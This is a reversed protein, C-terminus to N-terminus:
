KKLGLINKYKLFFLIVGGCSFMLYLFGLTFIGEGANDVNILASFFVYTLGIYGYVVSLLLFLFSQQKIAYRIFYVCLAALLLFSIFKLNQTFLASLTAIFLINAGFNHFTFSFHTKINKFHAVQAWTILCTGLVLATIIINLSSFDNNNFLQLPTVSLGFTAALGSIGLSLVGKHDFRYAIYFFVLTPIFTAFGYHNWFLNYQYQFYGIFTAFLLCALLVVYDFFPSEYIVRENSYKKKHKHIYYFCATTAAAILALIAQHGITDINQYVLIGVGSSLLLIGLYLIMRLEWHVSFLKEKEHREIEEFQSADIYGQKLLHKAELM